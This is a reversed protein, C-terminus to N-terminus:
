NTKYYIRIFPTYKNNYTDNITATIKIKRCKLGGGSVLSEYTIGSSASSYDLMLPIPYLAGDSGIANPNEIFNIHHRFLTSNQCCTIDTIIIDDIYLNLKRNYGDSLGYTVDFITLDGEISALEVLGPATFIKISTSIALCQMNKLEELTLPLVAKQLTNLNNKLETNSNIILSNVPMIYDNEGTEIDSWGM